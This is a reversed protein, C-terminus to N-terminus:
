KAGGNGKRVIQEKETEKEEETKEVEKEEAMSAGKEDDAMVYSWHAENDTIIQDEVIFVPIGLGSLKERRVLIGNANLGYEGVIRGKKGVYKEFSERTVKEIRIEEQLGHEKIDAQFDYLPVNNDFAQTRNLNQYLRMKEIGQVDPQLSMGAFFLCIKSIEPCLEKRAKEVGSSELMVKLLTLTTEQLAAQRKDEGAINWMGAVVGRTLENM